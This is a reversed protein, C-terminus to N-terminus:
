QWTCSRSADGPTAVSSQSAGSGQRQQHTEEPQHRPRCLMVDESRGRLGHRDLSAVTLGCLCGPRRGLRQDYWRRGRCARTLARLYAGLRACCRPDVGPCSPWVGVVDSSGASTRSVWAICPSTVRRSAALLLGSSCKSVRAISRRSASSVSLGAAGGAGRDLTGFFRALTDGLAAASRPAGPVTEGGRASATGRRAADSIGNGSM